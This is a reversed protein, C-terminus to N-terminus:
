IEQFRNELGQMVKCALATKGIGGKGYLSIARIDGGPALLLSSITAEEKQRDKFLDNIGQPASGIIHRRSMRHDSSGGKKLRTLQADSTSKAAQQNEADITGLNKLAQEKYTIQKQLDQIQYKIAEPRSSQQFQQDLDDMRDRLAQLEGEPSRMWLLHSFLQTMGQPISHTFDIYQLRHLRLPPTVPAFLLPLVPKKLSLARSWEDHCNSSAISGPTMVFLLAWCTTIAEDITRDWEYGARIDSRDFWSNFGNARLQEDLFKSFSKGDSRAYSVFLHNM